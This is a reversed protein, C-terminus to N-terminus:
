AFEINQLHVSVRNGDVAIVDICVECDPYALELWHALRILKMRKIRTLAEEPTGYTHSSRQKVEVLHTYGNKQAIIDIEGFRTRTNRALVIYGKSIL